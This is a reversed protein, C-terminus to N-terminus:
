SEEASMRLPLHIDLFGDGQILDPLVHDQLLLAPFVADVSSLQHPFLLWPGNMRSPHSPLGVEFSRSSNM